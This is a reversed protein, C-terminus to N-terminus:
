RANVFKLPSEMIALYIYSGGSANQSGGTGRPKFGNSLFDLPINTPGDEANSSNAMINYGQPNTPTRVDDFIYWSHASDTRKIMLWQVRGGTYVFPGDASGNGTYSGAKIIDSNAFCYAIHADGSGNILGWNDVTFVSSTPVDQSAEGKAGTTNLYLADESGDIVDTMVVWNVADTRNKIIILDPKQSLGHGVTAGDVEDGTYSVISFGADVNASVQSTISGNTNSVATGGAKWNWSAYTSGSANLGGTQDVANVTFGDSDFSDFDTSTIEAATLNSSLYKGATRVSDSLIHDGTASRRKAWVFDPQFGVGTISQTAGTGSYLVTNFHESGDVISPTPLNATCLALYGSPPAYAFDGINNADQNGGAPREGSFTSDQGFNAITQLATGANTDYAQIFFYEGSIGSFAPNTGNEPDGGAIWVGNVGWWIKGDKVAVSVIDGAAVASGYTTYSGNNAKQGSSLYLMYGNKGATSPKSLDSINTPAIGIEGYTGTIKYFEAYYGTADSPNFGFTTGVGSDYGHVIKLNGESLTITNDTHISNFTAFNNAPSDILSDRYDLGSPTWHNGQGSVDKWFAAERTDAFAMYIYTAGNVNINSDIYALHTFGTSTFSIYPYLDGDTEANSLNARIMASGNVNRTNDFISWNSTSDTRKIMVFAPAFGTTVANGAAGTGTYSGISSYGAVEAFCYAIHNAGNQNCHDGEVLPLTTASAAGTLCSNGSSSAATDNLLLGYTNAVASVSWSQTGDDRNKIIVLDPATGLGHGVTAGALHNGVYSVVSFGYDPNAKVSSTISGDTNSVPSGSGADWAWAVYSNGSGNHNSRSGVTFGDADFSTLGDTYTTEADTLNSHLGKTAGRVTDYLFHAGTANRMKVWVLDPELGLGSLSQSGGNGRYTVTNFGESVVDDQFTLHFGNTGYTGAYDKKEWYGNTFQGFSTPDLAQGDIFHIDSLYGDLPALAGQHNSRGMMHNSTSNVYTDLNQAPFGNPPSYSEVLVLQTGNIYIKVRNSLTAQTTDVTCVIHYWASVDRFVADTRVVNYTGGIARRDIIFSIQDNSDVVIETRSDYSGNGAGFLEQNTTLNGRKVWGSWTWTKRNGAAAPTWSLYQSEDDNFKLSQQTEGGQGSSGALIQTNFM